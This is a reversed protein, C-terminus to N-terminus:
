AEEITVPFFDILNNEAVMDLRIASTARGGTGAGYTAINLAVREDM